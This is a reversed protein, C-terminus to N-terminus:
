SGRYGAAQLAHRILNPTCIAAILLFGVCMNIVIGPVNLLSLGFVFAEILMVSLVVGFINGTGGSIAVGGLVVMTIIHLEWGQAINSRVSGLRSVLFVAAIGSVLGTLAFMVVKYRTVAVGSYRAAEPNNGIAFIRRGIVTLHLCIGFLVIVLALFVLEFPVKGGIYYRGFFFLDKPFKTFAGDTVIAIALGRYLSLTGITVVISHIGLGTALLGNVLGALLGTALGAAVIATVGAGSDSVIGMAVAALAIISAVSVDIERSIILVAMPLAVMAEEAANLANDVLNDFDLFFPSAWSMAATVVILLLALVAEWHTLLDAVRWRRASEGAISM